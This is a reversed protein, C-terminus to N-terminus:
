KSIAGERVLSKQQDRIRFTTTQKLAKMTAAVLNFKQRAQGKSKSWVDKIGALRFIKKLENEVVLGTGPPASMFTVRVSGSRGNIAFPISTPEPTESEWSGNGRAIQMLNLKANRVAKDKAPVTEKSRGVGVGVYGNRNGVVALANFSIRNGDKTKKQTQKFIRRKGGGFKGKAQGVNIFDFELEPILADVIEAEMIKRGSNMVEEITTIEGSKVKRGLETKPKWEDLMKTRPDIVEGDPGVRQRPNFKRNQRM